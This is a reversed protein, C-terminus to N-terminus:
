ARVREEFLLCYNWIVFAGDSFYLVSMFGTDTDGTELVRYMTSRSMGLFIIFGCRMIWPTVKATLVVSEERRGWREREREREVGDPM